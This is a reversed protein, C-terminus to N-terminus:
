MNINNVNSVYLDELPLDMEGKKWATFASGILKIVSGEEFVRMMTEFPLGDIEDVGVLDTDLEYFSTSKL